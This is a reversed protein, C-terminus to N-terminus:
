NPLHQASGHIISLRLFDRRSEMERGIGFVTGLAPLTFTASSRATSISFDEAAFDCEARVACFTKGGWVAAGQLVADTQPIIEKWDDREYNGAETVFLRYRPADENTIIYVKGNYIDAATSFIREPPSARDSAHRGELDM